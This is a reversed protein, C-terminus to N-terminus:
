KCRPSKWCLSCPQFCKEDLSMTANRMWLCQTKTLVHGRQQLVSSYEDGKTLDYRESLERFYADEDAAMLEEDDYKDFDSVAGRDVGDDDSNEDDDDEEEEDIAFLAFDESRSGFKFLSREATEM